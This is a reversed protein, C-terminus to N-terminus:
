NCQTDPAMTFLMVSGASQCASVLLFCRWSSVAAELTHGDYPNGHLAQVRLIFHGGKAPHLTALFSRLWVGRGLCDGATEGAAGISFSGRPVRGRSRAGSLCGFVRGRRSM